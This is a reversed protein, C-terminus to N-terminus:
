CNWNAKLSRANEYYWLYTDKEYLEILQNKQM